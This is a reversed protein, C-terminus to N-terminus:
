QCSLKRIPADTSHISDLYYRLKIISTVLNNFRIEVLDNKQSRIFQKEEISM